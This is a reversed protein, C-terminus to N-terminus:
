DCPVILYANRYASYVTCVPVNSPPYITQPVYTPHTVDDGCGVACLALLLCLWRM